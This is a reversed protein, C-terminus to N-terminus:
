KFQIGVIEQFECFQIFMGHIVSLYAIVITRDRARKLNANRCVCNNLEANEHLDFITNQFEILNRSNCQCWAFMFTQTRMRSKFELDLIQNLERLQRFLHQNCINRPTEIHV